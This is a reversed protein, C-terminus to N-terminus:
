QTKKVASQLAKLFAYKNKEDPELYAGESWENWANIFLFENGMKKSKQIQNILLRRFHHPTSNRIVFGSENKRATNDWGTFVGLYNKDINYQYQRRRIVKGVM